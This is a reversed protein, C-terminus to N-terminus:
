WRPAIAPPHRTPFPEARPLAPRQRRTIARQEGGGVRPDVGAADVLRHVVRPRRRDPRHDRRAGQHCGTSSTSRPATPDLLREALAVFEISELGLDADFATDLEITLDIAYEPGIVDVLIRRVIDLVDAIVEPTRNLTRHPGPLSTSRRSAGGSAVSTTPRREFAVWRDAVRAASDRCEIIEFDKPRGRLGRGTAKAAAEKVAWVCTLWTDRDYGDPPTLAQEHPTLALREFDASRPEIKEIDIGVDVGDAVLAVAAGDVHALSVRLDVLYPGRAIPRGSPENAVVIEAPFLPGHGQAWLWRRVADKVAIRGLLFQRQGLPHHQDYEAREARGLYRRMVVDRTAADTWREDDAHLRRREVSMCSREPWLLAEFVLADTAFRRDEWGTIRCWVRDDVTLELDARLTREDLLRTLM